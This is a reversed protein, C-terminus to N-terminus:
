WSRSPVGATVPLVCENPNFPNLYLPLNGYLRSKTPHEKWSINLVARLMRTYAGDLRAKLHKTLTWSSSGYLLVSEVTARFFNRKLHIPLSSKWIKNLKTLAGWAKGIRAKVDNESSSINSGLYIFSNVQELANGNITNIAGETNFCMFETKTANVYLGTDGAAKELSHLLASAEDTTNAFLALDDAYDADTLTTTPYRPSTSQTLILGNQPIKDISIRLIYDLCIIFLFPALTDGQLVGALIKFFETDGDPSRVMAKSNNYLAMIANVTELPIGYALLIKKMKGRHISDFAKSFDVFLLVAQLNKARVGEIVRRVTLIQGVTSRERRFGNQNKRLVKEIEPQIRNLLLSNYIKAAIPTLTIGRYNKTLGLDGKKPFPIICGESWKEITAGNYVENCLELLLNNFQGSKWVEPPVNDLACAKNYKLRDIVKDLEKHTFNGKKINLERNIITETPNDSIKPETGLLKEFQSKWKQLREEQNKAKIKSKNSSKRGSLENIVQWAVASQKNASAQQIQNIKSQVFEEQKTTYIDTLDILAQKQKRKNSRTPNDELLKTASKLKQRKESIEESEWPIRKQIKPKLPINEKAAKNHALVFNNYTQNPTPTTELNQLKDFHNHVSINYKNQIKANTKLTSWDYQPSKATKKKNSRM